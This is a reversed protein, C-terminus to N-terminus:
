ASVEAQMSLPESLDAYLLQKWMPHYVNALAAQESVGSGRAVCEVGTCLPTPRAFAALISGAVGVQPACRDQRYGALWRVNQGFVPPLGTFVDYKWGIERCVERTLAFQAAAAEIKAPHKVDVIRGDGNSLRLFFDPVHYM